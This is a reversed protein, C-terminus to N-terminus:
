AVAMEAGCETSSVSPRGRLELLRRKATLVEGAFITVPVFNERRGVERNESQRARFNSGTVVNASGAM